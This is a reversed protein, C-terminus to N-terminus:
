ILVRILICVAAVLLLSATAFIAIKLTKKTSSDLEDLAERYAADAAEDFENGIAIIEAAKDEASSIRASVASVRERFAAIDEGLSAESVEKVGDDPQLFIFIREGETMEPTGIAVVGYAYEGDTKVTASYEIGDLEMLVGEAWSLEADVREKLEFLNM